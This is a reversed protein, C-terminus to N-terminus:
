AVAFRPRPLVCEMLWHLQRPDVPASCYDAAGAELADLWQNTEPLRTVVVFPLSPRAERVRMLLPMYDTPEGGAFVLDVDLLDPLAVNTPKETFQHGDTALTRCIQGLVVPELGVLVVNAM